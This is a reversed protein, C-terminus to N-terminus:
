RSKQKEEQYNMKEFIEKELDDLQSLIEIIDDTLGYKKIEERLANIQSLTDKLIYEINKSYNSTNTKKLVNEYTLNNMRNNKAIKISKRVRNNVILATALKRSNNKKMGMLEVLVNFGLSAKVVNSLINSIKTKSKKININNIIRKLNGVQIKYIGMNDKQNTFNSKQEKTNTDKKSLKKSNKKKNKEKDIPKEATKTHDNNKAKEKDKLQKTPTESQIKIKYEEPSKIIINELNLEEKPAKEEVRQVIEQKDKRIDKDPVNKHIEADHHVDVNDSSSIDKSFEISEKELNDSKLKEKDKQINKIEKKNDLSKKIKNKLVMELSIYEASKKIDTKTTKDITELEEKCKELDNYLKELDDYNNEYKIFNCIRDVHKDLVYIDQIAKKLNIDETYKTSKLVSKESRSNIEESNNLINKVRNKDSVEKPQNNKLDNKSANEKFLFSFFFSLILLVIKKIKFFIRRMLDGNVKNYM